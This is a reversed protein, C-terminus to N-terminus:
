MSGRVQWSRWTMMGSKNCHNLHGWSTPPGFVICLTNSNNSQSTTSSYYSDWMGSGVNIFGSSNLWAATNEEYNALSELEIVNSLRWDRFGCLSSSNASTLAEQWTTPGTINGDRSWILGTLRDMIVDTSADADCDATQDACPGSANCYTIAFRPNPWAVGKKLEGDQGTGACAKVDGTANYCTTQGTKPLKIIGGSSSGRVPFVSWNTDKAYDWISGGHFISVTMAKLPNDSSTNSTWHITNLVNVFPHGPQLAPDNASFDVLSFLENKNPLRWDSYGCLSLANAYTLAEQWEMDAAPKDADRTWVLGTLNDTVIDTSADADCDASQDACTGSANCYTTTFRPNPWPVGKKLEGDQGTGACAIVAGKSNYCKKQGTKPLSVAPTNASSCNSYGSFGTAVPAASQAKARVRYSYTKGGTVTSDAAAETGASASKIQAWAGATACTGAKREILFATENSSKDIWKLDVRTASSVTAKLASPKFPVVATETAPSCGSANCAKINYSYVKTTTNNTAKTDSYSKVNEGTDHLLTWAGGGTKRYIKFGTENASKDKWTLDVTGANISEAQLGAPAAPAAAGAVSVFMLCLIAM